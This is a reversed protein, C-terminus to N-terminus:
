PSTYLLCSLATPLSWSHAVPPEACTIPAPQSEYGLLSSRGHGANAHLHHHHPLLHRGVPHQRHKLLDRPKAVVGDVHEALVRSLDFEYMELVVPDPEERSRRELQEGRAIARPEAPLEGSEYRDRICM